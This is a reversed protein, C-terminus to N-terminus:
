PTGGPTGGAKVTVARLEAIDKAVDNSTLVEEVSIAELPGLNSVRNIGKGTVTITLQNMSQQFSVANQQSLNDNTILNSFSLNSLMASQEAVTKVNAIAVSQRIDGPVASDGEGTPKDPDPSDKAKEFYYRLVGIVDKIAQDVSADAITLKTVVTQALEELPKELTYSPDSGTLGASTLATKVGAVDVTPKNDALVAVIAAALDELKGSYTFKM